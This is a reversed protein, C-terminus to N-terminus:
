RCRGVPPSTTPFPKRGLLHATTVFYVTPLRHEMLLPLAFDCNEAYGDDFTFTVTPRPSAGNRVRRQLEDLGIPELHETAYEVHRRFADRSLTWDNPHCDAVRHYFLVTM